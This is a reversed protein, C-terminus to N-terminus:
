RIQCEIQIPDTQVEVCQEEPLECGGYLQFETGDESCKWIPARGEAELIEALNWPDTDYGRPLCYLRNPRCTVPREIVDVAVDATVDAAVVVDDQTTDTETFGADAGLSAGDFEGFEVDAEVTTSSSEVWEVPTDGCGILTLTMLLTLLRM